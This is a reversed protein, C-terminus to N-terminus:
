GFKMSKMLRMVKKLCSLFSYAIGAAPFVADLVVQGTYRHDPHNILHESPFLLQPDCTVLINPRYKRIMRVIRQRLQLDPVIIGDQYDLFEVSKVGLVQAANNQEIIRLSSLETPTITEDMAGKEGEDFACIQSHTWRYGLARHAM